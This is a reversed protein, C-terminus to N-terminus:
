LFYLFAVVVMNDAQNECQNQVFWYHATSSQVDRSYCCKKVNKTVQPIVSTSISLLLKWSLVTNQLGALM